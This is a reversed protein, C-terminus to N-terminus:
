TARFPPLGSARMRAATLMPTGGCMMPMPGTGAIRESSSRAPSERESMSRISILSAKPACTM